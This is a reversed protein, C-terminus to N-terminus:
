EQCIDVRTFNVLDTLVVIHAEREGVMPLPSSVDGHYDLPSNVGASGADSM